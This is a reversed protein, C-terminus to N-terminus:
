ALKKRRGVGALGLLGSGFLWVAAPLPVTGGSNAVLLGDASLTLQASKYQNAKSSPSNGDTVYAWLNLASGLNGWTTVGAAFLSDATAGGSVGSTDDMGYLSSVGDEAENGPSNDLYSFFSNLTDVNGIKTNTLPSTGSPNFTTVATFMLGSGGLASEDDGTAAGALIGWKVGSTSTRGSLWTQFSSIAASTNGTFQFNTISNDPTAATVSSLPLLDNFNIGLDVFFYGDSSRANTDTAFLVLSTGNPNYNGGSGLLNTIPDAHAAAGVLATGALALKIANKILKM